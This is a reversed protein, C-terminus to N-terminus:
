KVEKEKKFEKWIDDKSVDVPRGSLSGIQMRLLLRAGERL